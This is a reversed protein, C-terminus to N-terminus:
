KMRKSYNGTNAGRRIKGVKKNQQISRQRQMQMKQNKKCNKIRSIKRIQQKSLTRKNTNIVETKEQIKSEVQKNTLEQSMAISVIFVILISLIYKM